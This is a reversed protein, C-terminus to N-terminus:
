AAIMWRMSTWQDEMKVRGDGDCLAVRSVSGKEIGHVVGMSGSGILMSSADAGDAEKAGRGM